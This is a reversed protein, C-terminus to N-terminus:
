KENAITKIILTKGLGPVGELLIHGGCLLAIFINEIVQTQGIVNKNIEKFLEDKQNNLKQLLKVNDM